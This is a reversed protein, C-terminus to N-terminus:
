PEVLGTFTTRAVKLPRFAMRAGSSIAAFRPLVTSSIEPQLGPVASTRSVYCVHCVLRDLYRLHLTRGAHQCVVLGAQGAQTQAPDAVRHFHLVRGGVPAHDVLDTVEHHNRLLSPASGSRTPLM